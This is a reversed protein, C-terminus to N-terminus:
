SAPTPKSPADKPFETQRLRQEITSSPTNPDNFFFFLCFPVEPASGHRVRKVNEKFFLFVFRFNTGTKKTKYYEKM